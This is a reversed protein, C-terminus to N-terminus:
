LVRWLSATVSAGQLREPQQGGTRTFIGSLGFSFAAMDEFVHNQARWDAFNGPAPTNRELGFRPFSEWVFVLRGPDPYPLARLLTEHFVGFIATNVGIGAGMALIAVFAFGPNKRLLRIAFRVDGMVSALHMRRAM